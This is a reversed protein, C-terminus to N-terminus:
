AELMPRFHYNWCNVSDYVAKQMQQLTEDDVECACPLFGVNFHVGFLVLDIRTKRVGNNLYFRERRLRMALEAEDQADAPFEYEILIGACDPLEAQLKRLMESGAGTGRRHRVTALYDLICADGPRAFLMIAYAAIEDGDFLGYPIMTGERHCKQLIFLPKLEEKPFDFVMHDNYVAILQEPTLQKLEM